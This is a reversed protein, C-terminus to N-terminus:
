YIHSRSLNGLGKEWLRHGPHILDNVGQHIRVLQSIERRLVLAVGNSAENARKVKVWM